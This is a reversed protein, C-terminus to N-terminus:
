EYRLSRAPKSMIIKMTQFAVTVFSIFLMLLVPVIFFWAKLDTRFAYHSLWANMSFWAVPLAIVVAILILQFFGKVLQYFLNWRSAGLVKRIGMEKTRTSCSFMVLVWLGLCSIFIALGTFSGIMAGFVEDQRYQHDFFQDLFFYDFSSDAFYQNWIEQVQSVLERPNGSAMVVSIYRQPLWDIKDKHILMIPTYNKSLAQQHYDKVVGIIQMPADTCEVTVLEGIAEDNSAFGLNRVATENIVLKDVDDGYEESFSRGAVIQLGYADAYDPDCALMEYLRNQKLADNTRRNSLFTAVEEGPVAGSFTVRHVLPLRAIAKKMAELKINQGETHGPFKVVLTQSTKVGLSQNRMFNLQAFVILTVCLLIMSATYQVVVLVQRTRDGSKSHLFKGKLLTIPKRNLLALAPYYGSIFIGAIFVLVLLIWWYDMFWVSFTVTRGVLQNFHPLVLEILGVALIFAELKINQGETHGPFKVVLTQSTKVGLSQNRMFNLQAFVILTVCLLIMSATYQVVVLVQRTRDGSKSHLFKGKLLTIPKRNLLALAPYYGSIFIGAIFVLVLLIWWYDMFWVSFTVTRGVLQNFHPLVLEILGVALIFAILNMVLAEFLFQYILQQRFAGVVRRVGVEKAREMSRAVTLNIYNIWAIVLIAVAAFILAIMASRNGKTETEYGIQPTLHIDALPILSVGWTKNKLAEETKYKEAMVPFEKEIEAKREPSDLLVYTYAEHKYWYEQMYQPLSAYSILFNYHIHSNSPMEKMVGTVECSVKDYTGTFILIKGIPDEDKFYKRAIRETIVVQRPMSLCTKKDGKLLEFDFLRFFGPDAYAIQNERLTLEGYKVIQEPQLHTAIRTYDEIGALNEKMASAYGFSSTAWYDTLVEGEHFTSQVRYIHAYKTHMKDFSFEFTVYTLMLLASAMGIALGFINIFSFKKRKMLNRYASNWYNGIM